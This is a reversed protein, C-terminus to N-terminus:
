IITGFSIDQDHGAMMGQAHAEFIEDIKFGIQSNAAFGRIQSFCAADHAAIM